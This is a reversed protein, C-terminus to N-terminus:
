TLLAQGVRWMCSVEYRSSNVDSAFAGVEIRGTHPNRKNSPDGLGNSGPRSFRRHEPGSLSVSDKEIPPAVGGLELEGGENTGEEEVPVPVPTPLTPLEKVVSWDIHGSDVLPFDAVAAAGSNTISKDSLLALKEYSTILIANAWKIIDDTARADKDASDEHFIKESRAKSYMGSEESMKALWGPTVDAGFAPLIVKPIVGPLSDYNIIFGRQKQSASYTSHLEYAELAHECLMNLHAACRGVSCCCCLLDDDGERHCPSVHRMCTRVLGRDAPFPSRTGEHCASGIRHTMLTSRILRYTVASHLVSHAIYAAHM